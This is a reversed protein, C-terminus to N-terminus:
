REINWHISFSSPIFLSFPIAIFFFIALSFIMMIAITFLPIKLISDAVSHRKSCMEQSFRITPIDLHFPFLVFQHWRRFQHDITSLSPSPSIKIFKRYICIEMPWIFRLVFLSHHITCIMTKEKREEAWLPILTCHSHYFNWSQFGWFKKEISNSLNSRLWLIEYDNMSYVDKFENWELYLCISLGM